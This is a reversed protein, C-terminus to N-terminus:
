KECNQPQPASILHECIQNQYSLRSGAEHVAMKKRHGWMTCLHLSSEPTKKIIVSMKNILAGSEHGLRKRFAEGEIVIVNSM